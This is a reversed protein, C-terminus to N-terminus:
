KVSDGFAFCADFADRFEQPTGEDRWLLDFTAYEDITRLDGRYLSRVEVEEVHPKALTAVVGFADFCWDPGAETEVLWAEDEVDHVLQLVRM